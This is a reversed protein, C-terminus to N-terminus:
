PACCCRSGHESAVPGVAAAWAQLAPDALSATNYDGGLHKGPQSPVGVLYAGSARAAAAGTASDELTVGACPRAGLKAFAALYLDPAPKPNRVEDAAVTFSFYGALGASRLASDLMRRPSNTAVALPVRGALAALLDEAGPLPRVGAALEAEVLPVLEAQLRPGQGPLDLCAAINECAAPIARGILLDKETPGFTRGHRAFLTAEARSWCVETDLLLGDCDFVVASVRSPLNTM